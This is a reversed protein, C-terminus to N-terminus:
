NTCLNSPSADMRSSRNKGALFDSYIQSLDVVQETPNEVRKAFTLLTKIVM